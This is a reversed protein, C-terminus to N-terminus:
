ICTPTFLRLSEGGGEMALRVLSLDVSLLSWWARTAKSLLLSVLVKKKEKGEAAKKKAAHM